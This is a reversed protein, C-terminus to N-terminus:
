PRRLGLYFLAVGAVIFAAGLHLFGTGVSALLAGGYVHADVLDFRPPKKAPNM